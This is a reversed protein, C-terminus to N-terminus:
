QRDSYWVSSTDISVHPHQSRLGVDVVVFMIVIISVGMALREFDSLPESPMNSIIVLLLIVIILEM